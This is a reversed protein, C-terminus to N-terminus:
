VVVARAPLGALGRAPRKIKDRDFGRVSASLRRCAGGVAGCSAWCCGRASAPCVVPARVQVSAASTIRRELLLVVLGDCAAGSASSSVVCPLCVAMYRFRQLLGM